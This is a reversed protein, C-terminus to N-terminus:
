RRPCLEPVAVGPLYRDREDDTLPTTRSGCLRDAVVDPDVGWLRVVTDPGAGALTTGSHAFTADFVAGKYASLTVYPRPDDLKTTDWLWLSDDTGAALRKGDPAFSLSRVGGVPGKATAVQKVNARDSIDFLRVTRDTGGAALTSGDPTFALALVDNTFGSLSPLERPASPQRVDWVRVKRDATAITFTSGDPSFASLQPLDGADLTSVRVPMDLNTVDWLSVDAGDQGSAALLHGDARFSLGAVLTSTAGFASGIPRPPTSAVNWLMVRGTAEGVAATRGDKTIAVAGTAHDGVEPALQAREVPSRTDTLNWLHPGGDKAGSGVLLLDGGGDTPTQFVTARSSTLVPGPLAWIKVVGDDASTLLSRGTADFRGVEFGIANPLEQQQMGTEADFIRVSDTTGVAVIRTGDATFDVDNVYSSFGTLSPLPEPTAPNVFRWRRVEASRMAAAITRGDPSFTVAQVQNTSNDPPVEFVPPGTIADVPWIRMAGQTGYAVLFRSDPSFALAAGGSPLETGPSPAPRSADAVNWLAIAGTDAASVALRAGDSSLEVDKIDFSTDVASVRSPSAANRVNWLEVHTTGAVVVLDRSPSVVLATPEATADSREFTSLTNGASDILRVTGDAGAIADFGPGAEVLTRGPAGVLRMPTDVATSDLLASRAEVTPGIRYAALALQAALAPDTTRLRTSEAAVQRSTADDRAQEADVRDDAAGSRAVLATVALVLAVVSVVALAAVLRHLNRSRRREVDLRREHEANSADLFERELINLESDNGAAWENILPLRAASLLTGTDRGSEDWMGAAQTLRRHVVLGARDTEVWEHLRAWARVLVEHSIEVTEEEVTLLRHSAFRDIVANVDATADDFFLEGRHVRRRTQAAEDVHVLRLFIRRAIDTQPGTLSSYAKEASQEVAGALGGTETYAAVTLRRRRAREWTGLLAHSLLPLAGVDHASRSGAPALETLLLQVLDDDVTWGRMRAPEVIVERLGEHTLPGVVAPGAQLAGILAVDDAARAYFDSRLGIVVVPKAVAVADFFARREGDDRCQTWSEEFQDFVVVDGSAPLAPHEGPTTVTVGVGRAALGAALGARLLSSKGSGSAGIVAILHPGATAAADLVREVLQTSLTARGHFLGADEERFSELGPYPCEADASNAPAERVRRVAEIWPTQDPGHVGCRDLLQVFTPESFKTPVHHGVFWGSVTGPHSGIASALDRVTSGSAARLRSLAEAFEARTRVDGPDNVTPSYM